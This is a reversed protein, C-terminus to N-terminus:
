VGVVAGYDDAKLLEFRDIGFVLRLVSWKPRQRGSIAIARDATEVEGSRLPLGDGLTGIKIQFQKVEAARKRRAQDHDHALGGVRV